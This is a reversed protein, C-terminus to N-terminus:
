QKFQKFILKVFAILSYFICIYLVVNYDSRIKEHNTARQAIRYNMGPSYSPTETPLLPGM